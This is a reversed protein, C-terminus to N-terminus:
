SLTAGVEDAAAEVEGAVDWLFQNRDPSPTVDPIPAAPDYIRKGIIDARVFTSGRGRKDYASQWEEVRETKIRRTALALM